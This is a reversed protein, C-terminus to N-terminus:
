SAKGVWINFKCNRPMLAYRKLIWTDWIATFWVLSCGWTYGTQIPVHGPPQRINTEVGRSIIMEILYSQESSM